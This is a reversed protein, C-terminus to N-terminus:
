VTKTCPNFNHGIPHCTNAVLHKAVLVEENQLWNEVLSTYFYFNDIRLTSYPYFPEFLVLLFTFNQSPHLPNEIALSKLEFYLTQSSNGSVYSPEFGVSHM